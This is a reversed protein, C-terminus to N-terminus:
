PKAKPDTTASEPTNPTAQVAAEPAVMGKARPRAKTRAPKRTAVPVGSKGLKAEARALVKRQEALKAKAQKAQKKTRRVRLKAQKRQRKALRAQKTAAKWRNEATAVQRRAIRVNDALKQSDTKSDSTEM